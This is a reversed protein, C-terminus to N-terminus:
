AGAEELELADVDLNTFVKSVDELEELVDILQLLKQADAAHLKVVNRAVMEIESSEPQYGKAKLRDIVAHFTNPESTVIYLDGDVVFDAAGAELADNMATEEPIKGAPIAIMGKRDFMWAVSNTAGLNGNNRSFAHRIEAVTRNANDTSAEVLIATGGPGYGEYTVEEYSVGALEGTGKKVARDINENPMNAAKADDIAKRLRPNGGADGGGAKAAVTIERILKTWAQARRSDTVAKKRKIQKWKSHGAM